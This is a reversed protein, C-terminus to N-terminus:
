KYKVGFKPLYTIAVCSETYLNLIVDRFDKKKDPIKISNSEIMKAIQYELIQIWCLCTSIHLQLNNWSKCFWCCAWGIFTYRSSLFIHFIHLAAREWFRAVYIPVLIMNVNQNSLSDVFWLPGHLMREITIPRSKRIAFYVLLRFGFYKQLYLREHWICM